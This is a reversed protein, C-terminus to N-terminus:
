DVTHRPMGPAWLMIRTYDGFFAINADQDMKAMITSLRDGCIGADNPAARCRKAEASPWFLDVRLAATPTDMARPGGPLNQPTGFQALLEARLDRLCDETADGPVRLVVSDLAQGAGEFYLYASVSCSKWDYPGLFDSQGFHWDAPLPHQGGYRGYHPAAEAPTMRWRLDDLGFPLGAPQARAAGGCLLVAIALCGAAKM